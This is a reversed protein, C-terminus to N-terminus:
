PVSVTQPFNWLFGGGRRVGREWKYFSATLFDVTKDEDPMGGAQPQSGTLGQLNAM